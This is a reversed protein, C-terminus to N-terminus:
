TDLGLSAIIQKDMNEQSVNSETLLEDVNMEETKSCSYFIAMLLLVVFYYLTKM